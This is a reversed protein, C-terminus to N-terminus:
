DNKEGGELLSKQLELEPVIKYRWLQRLYEPCKVDLGQYKQLYAAIETWSAGKNLLGQVNNRLEYKLRYHLTRGRKKEREMKKVARIRSLRMEDIRELEEEEPAAARRKLFEQTNLSKLKGIAILWIAYYYHHEQEPLAKRINFKEQIQNRSRNFLKMAEKQIAVPQNAFWRFLAAQEQERLGTLHYVLDQTM